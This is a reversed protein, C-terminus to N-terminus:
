NKFWNTRLDIMTQKRDREAFVPKFRGGNSILQKHGGDRYVRINCRDAPHLESSTNKFTYPAGFDIGLFSSRWGIYGPPGTRYGEEEETGLGWLSKLFDLESGVCFFCPPQFGHHIRVVALRRSHM